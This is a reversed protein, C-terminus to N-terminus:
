KEGEVLYQKLAKLTEPQELAEAWITLSQEGLFPELLWIIQSGVFGWIRMVDLLPITFWDLKYLRLTDAWDKLANPLSSQTTM